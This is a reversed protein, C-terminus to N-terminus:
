MEFIKPMTLSFTKHHMTIICHKFFSIPLSCILHKVAIPMQLFLSWYGSMEIRSRWEGHTETHLDLTIGESQAILSAQLSNTHTKEGVQAQDVM